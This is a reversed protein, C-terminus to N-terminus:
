LYLTLTYLGQDWRMSSKSAVSGYERLKAASPARVWTPEHNAFEMVMPTHFASQYKCLAEEKASM